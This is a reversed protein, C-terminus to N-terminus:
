PVQVPQADLCVIENEDRLYIRGEVVIPLAWARSSQLVKPMEGLLVFEEPNAEALFLTGDQTLGLLTDDVLILCGKGYERNRSNRAEWDEVAEAKRLDM